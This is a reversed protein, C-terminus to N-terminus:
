TTINNLRPLFCGLGTFQQFRVPFPRSVFEPAPCIFLLLSFSFRM